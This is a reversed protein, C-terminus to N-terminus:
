MGIFQREQDTCDCNLKKVNGADACKKCLAFLLKGKPSRYPLLPFLLKKPALVRVKAIGYYEDINGLDRTLIKPHGVM